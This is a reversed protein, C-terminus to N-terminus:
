AFLRFMTLNCARARPDREPSGRLRRDRRTAASDGPAVCSSRWSSWRSGRWSWPFFVLSTSYASGAVPSCPPPRPRSDLPSRSRSVGSEVRPVHPRVSGIEDFLQASRIRQTPGRVFRDVLRRLRRGVDRERCASAVRLECCSLTQELPLRLGRYRQRRGARCSLFLKGARDRAVPRAPRRHAFEIRARRIDSSTHTIVSSKVYHLQAQKM